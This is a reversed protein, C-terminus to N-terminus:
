PWETANRAMLGIAKQGSAAKGILRFQRYHALDTAAGCEPPAPPPPHPRDVNSPANKADCANAVGGIQPISFPAYSAPRTSAASISVPDLAAWGL